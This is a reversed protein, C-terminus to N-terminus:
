FAKVNLDTAVTMGRGTEDHTFTVGDGTPMITWGHFRYVDGNALEHPDFGDYGMPLNADRYTLEGAASVTAQHQYMPLEPDIAPSGPFGNGEGNQCVVNPGIGPNVDDSGVMCTMIPSYTTVMTSHGASPDAAALPALGLAATIGM